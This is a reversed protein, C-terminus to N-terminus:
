VGRYFTCVSPQRCRCRGDTKEDRWRICNWVSGRHLYRGDAIDAYATKVANWRFFGGIQM